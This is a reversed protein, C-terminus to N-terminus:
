PTTGRRYYQTNAAGQRGHAVPWPSGTLVRVSGPGQPLPEAWCLGGSSELMGGPSDGADPEDWDAPAMGLEVVPEAAGREELRPVGVEAAPATGESGDQCERHGM